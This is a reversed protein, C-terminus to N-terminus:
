YRAVVPNPPGWNFHYNIGGKITNVETRFSVGGVVLNDAFTNSQFDAFMYEVKASWNPAFLYEIGGGVTWGSRFRNDSASFLVGGPTLISASLKQNAFAWGGKAYIMGPGWTWGLRGTVSGISDAKNEVTTLGFVTNGSITRGIDAWGGDAEIGILWQSGYPAFNYGLTGGFFGGNVNGSDVAFDVGGVSVSSRNAWGWGGMVGIYFGNWDYVPPPPPPPPPPAKRALDAASATVTAAVLAAAALLYKSM